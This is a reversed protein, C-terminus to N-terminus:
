TPWATPRLRGPGDPAALAASPHKWERKVSPVWRAYVQATSTKRCKRFLRPLVGRKAGHWARGTPRSRSRDAGARFGSLRPSNYSHRVRWGASACRLQQGRTPATARLKRAVTRFGIPSGPNATPGGQRGHPALWPSRPGANHPLRQLSSDQVRLAARPAALVVFILKPFWSWMTTAGTRDCCAAGGPAARARGSPDSWATRPRCGSASGVRRM